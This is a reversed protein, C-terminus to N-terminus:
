VNRTNMLLPIFILTWRRGDAEKIADLDWGESTSKGGKTIEITAAPMLWANYRSRLKGYRLNPRDNNTKSQIKIFRRRGLNLQNPKFFHPQGWLCGTDPRTFGGWLTSLQIHQFFCVTGPWSESKNRQQLCDCTVSTKIGKSGATAPLSENKNRQQLRDCIDLQDTRWSSIWSFVFVLILM